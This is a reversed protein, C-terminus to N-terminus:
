GYVRFLGVSCVTIAVINVAMQPKNVVRLSWTLFAVTGLVFALQNWFDKHVEAGLANLM